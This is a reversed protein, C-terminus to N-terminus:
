GQQGIRALLDAFAADMFAFPDKRTSGSPTTTAAAAKVKRGAVVIQTKGEIDHTARRQLGDSISRHAKV